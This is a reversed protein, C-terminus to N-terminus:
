FGERPCACGDASGDHDTHRCNGCTECAWCFAHRQAFWTAVTMTAYPDVEDASLMPAPDLQAPDVELIQTLEALLEERRVWSAMTPATMDRVYLGIGDPSLCGQEGNAWEVRVSHADIVDVLRVAARETGRKVRAGTKLDFAELDHIM